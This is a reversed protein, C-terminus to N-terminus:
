KLVIRTLTLGAWVVFHYGAVAMAVSVACACLLTRAGFGSSPLDAGHTHEDYDDIM